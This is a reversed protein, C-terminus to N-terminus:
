LADGQTTVQQDEAEWALLQERVTGFSTAIDGGGQRERRESLEADIALWDAAALLREALPFFTEEEMRMHRREFTVFRLAAEVVAERPIDTEGLLDSVTRRFRRAREHALVHEGALDAIAAAEVPHGALLREAIADEVPHHCLGPHDLFYEAVGAVVDYDPEGGEAFLGVQRELADLLRETNRHDELLTAIQSAM